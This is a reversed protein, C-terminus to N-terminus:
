PDRLLSETYGRKTESGGAKWRRQKLLEPDTPLIPKLQSAIYNETIPKGHHAETWFGDRM